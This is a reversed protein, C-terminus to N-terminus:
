LHAHFAAGVSCCPTQPCPRNGACPRRLSIAASAAASLCMIRMAADADGDTQVRQSIEQTCALLNQAANVSGALQAGRAVRYKFTYKGRNQAEICARVDVGAPNAVADLSLISAYSVGKVYIARRDRHL